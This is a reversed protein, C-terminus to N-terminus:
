DSGSASAEDDDDKLIAVLLGAGFACALSARFTRENQLEQIIVWFVLVFPSGYILILFLKEISKKM